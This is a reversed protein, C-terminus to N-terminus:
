KYYNKMWFKLLFNSVWTYVPCLGSFRRPCWRVRESIGLEFQTDEPISGSQEFMAKLLFGYWKSVLWNVGIASWHVTLCHCLDKSLIIRSCFIVFVLIGELLPCICQESLQRIKSFSLSVSICIQFDGLINKNM